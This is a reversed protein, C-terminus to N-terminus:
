PHEVMFDVPSPIDIVHEILKFQEKCGVVINVASHM